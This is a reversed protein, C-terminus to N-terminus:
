EHRLCLRKAVESDMRLWREDLWELLGEDPVDSRAVRSAVFVSDHGGNRLRRYIGGFTDLGDFGTHWAFVLDAEPAGRLLALTGSPRIPLLCRLDALRAARDPDSAAISRLARERKRANARTGEPFIVVVSEADLGAALSELAKRTDAALGGIHYEVGGKAFWGHGHIGVYEAKGVANVKRGTFIHQFHLFFEQLHNRSFKNAVGVVPKNEM